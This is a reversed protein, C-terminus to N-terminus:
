SGRVLVVPCPAHRALREATSGLLWREMGERGHTALVIWPAPLEEAVQLIVSAPHGDRYESTIELGPESIRQVLAALYKASEQELARFLRELHPGESLCAAAGPQDPCRFLHLRASFKRALELAAPLASEARTSGDLPVLVTKIM